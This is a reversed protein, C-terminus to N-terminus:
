GEIKIKVATIKWTRRDEKARCYIIGKDIMEPFGYPFPTRGIFEGNETYIDMYYEQVDEGLHQRQIRNMSFFVLVRGRADFLLKNVAYIKPVGYYKINEHTMTVWEEPFVYRDPETFYNGFTRVRKGNSDYKRIVYPNKPYRFAIYFHGKKDTTLVTRAALPFDMDKEHQFSVQNFCETVRNLGVDYIEVAKHHARYRLNHFLFRDDDLKHLEQRFRFDPLKVHFDNAFDWNFGYLRFPFDFDYALARNKGMDTVVHFRAGTVLDYWKKENVRYVGNFKEDERKVSQRLLFFTNFGMKFIGRLYRFSDRIEFLPTFSIGTSTELRKKELPIVTVAAPAPQPPEYLLSFRPDQIKKSADFETLPSNRLWRRHKYSAFDPEGMTNSHSWWNRGSARDKLPDEDVSGVTQTHNM